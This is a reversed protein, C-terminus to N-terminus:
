LDQTTHNLEEASSAVKITAAGVENIIRVLSSIELEVKNIEDIGQELSATIQGFVEKSHEAEEQGITVLSQVEGISQVVQQTFRNSQEILQNIQFLAQNSDESLKKVEGAVVGFGAGHAGARAAEIAANLSLLKTQNAIEEVFKVVKRIQTSSDKLQIVTKEMQKSSNNIAQIRHELENIKAQGTLALLQSDRSMDASQLFSQNVMNSTTILEETSASTQETLAALEQSIIGIKSKLLNKIEDYHSEREQLNKKEYAELVLQQEFNLLKSLSSSIMKNEQQDTVHRDIIHLFTNQLNQFAGMYWKPELGIRQHVNAIRQRKEVFSKDIKGTFLETLHARLTGRLREITSNNSVISKLEPIELITSYFSDVVEDIHEEILPHIAMLIQLDQVTFHIMEMQVELNPDDSLDIYAQELAAKEILRLNGQDKIGLSKPAKFLSSLLNGM